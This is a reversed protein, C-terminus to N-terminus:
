LMKECLSRLHKRANFLRSMVTGIPIDILTAIEKYSLGEIDKLILVEREEGQLKKISKWLHEILDSNETHALPDPNRDAIEEDIKCTQHFVNNKTRIHNLCLNRLITYYWTFFSKHINFSSLSRYARIFAEQSLDLADDHNGVLGLAIYYARKMYRQVIVKYAFKNGKICSQIAEEDTINSEEPTKQITQKM